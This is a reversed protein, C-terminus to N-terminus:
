DPLFAGSLRTLAKSGVFTKNLLLLPRDEAYGHVFIVLLLDKPVHLVVQLANDGLEASTTAM